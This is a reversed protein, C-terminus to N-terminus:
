NVKLAIGGIGRNNFVITRLGIKQAMLALGKVYDAHSAGTLGPLIIVIPTSDICDGFPDLWDLGVEGGDKM